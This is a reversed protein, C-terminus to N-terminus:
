NEGAFSHSIDQRSVKYAPIIAGCFAIVFLIMYFESVLGIPIISTYSIVNFPSYLNFGTLGVFQTFQSLGWGMIGGIIMGSLLLILSETLFLGSIQLLKMGLARETYLEKKREILQMWAFMVLIFFGIIISLLIDANIVSTLTLFGFNHTYLNIEQQAIDLSLSFNGQLWQAVQVQNVNDKFKFYIGSIQLNFSSNAFTYNNILFPAINIVGHLYQGNDSAISIGGGNIYYGNAYIYLRPWYQYTDIVIFPVVGGNNANTLILSSDLTLKRYELEPQRIIIAPTSTHNALLEMDRNLSYHLAPNIPFIAASLFSSTNIALFSAFNDTPMSLELFPSIGAFYKSYNTELIHILTANYFNNSNTNPLLAVAEAGLNYETTTTIYAVSSYAASLFTISIALLIAILMVARTSAQRHRAVNRLAYAVLSSSHKWLLSSTRNLIYPFLRSVFLIAGISVLFPSIVILYVLPGLNISPSFLSGNFIYYVIGGGFFLIFDLYHRKWFPDKKEIPNETENITIRSLRIMRILYVLLGFICSSIILYPLISNIRLVFMTDNFNNFSLFSDTHIIILTVPIGVLVGGIVAFIMASGFDLIQLFLVLFNSAGRTKYMGIYRLVQRHILGFSFNAVFLTVIAIPFLFLIFDGIISSTENNVTFLPSFYNNFYVQVYGLLGLPNSETSSSENSLLTYIDDQLSTIFQYIRDLEGQADFANFNHYNLTIGGSIYYHFNSGLVQYTSNTNVNAVVKNFLQTLNNVFLVSLGVGPSFGAGLNILTRSLNPYTTYDLHRIQTFGTINILSLSPFFTTSNPPIINAYAKTPKDLDPAIKTNYAFSPMLNFLYAETTNGAPPVMGTGDYTTLSQLENRIASTIECIYSISLNQYTYKQGTNSLQNFFTNSANIYLILGSIYNILQVSSIKTNFNMLSIRNYITQNLSEQFQIFNQISNPLIVQINIDPIQSTYHTIGYANSNYYNQENQIALNYATLQMSDLYILGAAIVGVAFILGISSILIIKISSRIHGKYISSWNFLFM